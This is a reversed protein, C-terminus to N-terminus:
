RQSIDALTFAFKYHGIDWLDGCFIYKNNEPDDWRLMWNCKWLGLGNTTGQSYYEFIGNVWENGDYGLLKISVNAIQKIGAPSRKIKPPFHQKIPNNKAAHQEATQTPTKGKKPM